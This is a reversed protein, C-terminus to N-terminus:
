RKASAFTRFLATAQAAREVTPLKCHVALTEFGGGLRGAVAHAFADLLAAVRQNFFAAYQKRPEPRFVAYRRGEGVEVAKGGWTAVAEREFAQPIAVPQLRKLDADIGRVGRKQM